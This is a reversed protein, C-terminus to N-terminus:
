KNKFVFMNVKESILSISETGDLHILGKNNDLEQLYLSLRDALVEPPDPFPEFKFKSRRVSEDVPITSVFNLDPRVAVSKLLKWLLRNNHRETPYSLAFDIDTDMIYRDCVITYGSLRKFRLYIAYYIILDLIAITLWVTRVIPRALAKDRQPSHGPEPLKKGTVKRLIDKLLQFGPTYGGRSWFIFVKDGNNTIRDKLLEIQTSKGSCDLGSFIIIKSM